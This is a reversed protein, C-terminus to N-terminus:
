RTQHRRAIAKILDVSAAPSLATASLHQFATTTAQVDAARELFLTGSVSDVYAVDPDPGPFTFVGIMGSLSAHPGASFPMVQIDVGPHHAMEVLHMLQEHMVDLGGIERYLAAEDLVAWLRLGGAETIVAQRKLRLSLRRGIEDEGLTLPGARTIIARAYDPTQLLGPVSSPQYTRLSEAASELGIYTRANKSLMDSYPQWWEKQRAAKALQVLAERTAPDHVEYLDLLDMVDSWPVSIRGKEIRSVKAGYWGLRETVQDGTLGVAERLQRLEMGLQRRRVTPSTM